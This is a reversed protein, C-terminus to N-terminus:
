VVKALPPLSRVGFNTASCVGRRISRAEHNPVAVAPLRYQASHPTRLWYAAFVYRKSLRQLDTMGRNLNPRTSRHELVTM